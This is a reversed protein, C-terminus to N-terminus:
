SLHSIIFINDPPDLGYDDDQKIISALPKLFNPKPESPFILQYQMDPDNKHLIPFQQFEKLDYIQEEESNSGVELEM